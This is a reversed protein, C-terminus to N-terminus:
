KEPQNAAIFVEELKKFDVSTKIEISKFFSDDSKEVKVVEGVMIGKPFVGGIGASVVVDGIQVDEFQQVYKVILRNDGKGEAIGKIRSRQIIVDINSRPDIALLIKSTKSYSEVVRGVIGNATLAAMDKVIGDESGKDITITRFWDINNVGIVNAAKFSLPM